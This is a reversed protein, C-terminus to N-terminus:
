HARSPALLITELMGMGLGRVYELDFRLMSSSARQDLRLIRSLPSSATFAGAGSPQMM